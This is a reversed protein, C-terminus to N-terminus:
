ESIQKQKENVVCPVIIELYLVHVHIFSFIANQFGAYKQLPNYYQHVTFHFSYVNMFNTIVFAIM